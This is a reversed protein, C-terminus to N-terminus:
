AEPKQYQLNVPVTRKILQDQDMKFMTHCLWNGNDENPFDTRLHFGRSEERMLAGDVVLRAAEVTSQFEIARVWELNYRRFDPVRIAAAKQRILDIESLAQKLGSSDREVFVHTQMVKQLRSKLDKVTVDGEKSGLLQFVKEKEAVVQNAAAEGCDGAQRVWQAAQRGAEFGFVIWQTFSFGPIRLAGHVGGMIEGAAFLGPVTSETKENVRVGGTCFHSGITLEVKNQRPDIGMVKILRRRNEWTKIMSGPVPTTLGRQDIYIPGRGEKMEKFLSRVVQWSYSGGIYRKEVDSEVIEGKGNLYPGAWFDPFYRINANAPGVPIPVFNIMEPDIIEAGARFAMIHGAGAADTSVGFPNNSTRPYLEGTMGGTALVVASAQVAIFEGTKMDLAVAGSIRDGSKILSTVIADELLDVNETELIRKRLMRVSDPGPVCIRNPKYQTVPVGLHKLKEMCGTMESAMFKVLNQDSL